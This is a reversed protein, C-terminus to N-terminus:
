NSNTSPIVTVRVILSHGLSDSIQVNYTGATLGAKAEVIVTPGFAVPQEVTLGDVKDLLQAFYPHQGGSITFGRNGAQGQMFQIVGAPQIKFVAVPAEITVGCNELEDISKSSNVGNVISGVRTAASQMDTVAEILGNLAGRLTNEAGLLNSLLEIRKEEKQEKTLKHISSLSQMMQGVIAAGAEGGESRAIQPFIGPEPLQVFQASASALGSIINPLQILQTETSLIADDVLAAIRDVANELAPGAQSVALHLQIGAGYSDEASGVKAVAAQIQTRASAVLATDQGVVSIVNEIEIKVSGVNTRVSEIAESLYDLSGPLYVLGINLPEVATVACNLAKIGAIWAKQRLTSSFWSGLTLGSAGVIGASVLFDEASRSSSQLGIGLASGALATLSVALTNRLLSQDGVAKRYRDVGRQAYAIARPLSTPKDLPKPDNKVGQPRDWTLHPNLLTCGMVAVLAVAMISSQAVRRAVKWHRYTPEM